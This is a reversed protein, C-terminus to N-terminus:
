NEPDRCPWQPPPNPHAPFILSSLVLTIVINLTFILPCSISSKDSLSSRFPCLSQGLPTPLILSTDGAPLICISMTQALSLFLPGVQRLFAPMELLSITFVFLPHIASGLICLSLWLMISRWTLCSDSCAQPPFVMARLSVKLIPLPRPLSLQFCWHGLQHEPHRSAVSGLALITGVELDGWSRWWGQSPKGLVLQVLQGLFTM